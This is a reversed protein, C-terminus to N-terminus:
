EEDKEAIILDRLKDLADGPAEDEGEKEDATVSTIEVLDVSVDVHTKDEQESTNLSRRKFRVVMTGEKPLTAFEKGSLYVTPYHETSSPTPCCPMENSKTGLNIPTKM